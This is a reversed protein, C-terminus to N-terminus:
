CPKVLTCEVVAPASFRWVACLALVSSENERCLLTQFFCVANSMIHISSFTRERQRNGNVEGPARAQGRRGDRVDDPVAKQGASACPLFVLLSLLARCLEFYTMTLLIPYKSLDIGM